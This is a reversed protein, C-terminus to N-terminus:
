TVILEIHKTRDHQAPNHAISITSKSDCFLKLPLELTVRLEKLVRFGYDKVFEKPWQELNLKQVVEPLWGKNRAEGLLWTEECM